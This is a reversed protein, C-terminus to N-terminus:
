GSALVIIDPMEVVTCQLLAWLGRLMFLRVVLIAHAPNRGRVKGLRPTMHLTKM